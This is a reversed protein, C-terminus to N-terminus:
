LSLDELIGLDAYNQAQVKFMRAYAGKRAMLEDHSGSEIISGNEMMYIRDVMRASSLRHSIFIVTRDCLETMITKYLNYESIPDLASSPEDFIVIEAEENAFVRALAIKQEEGGSLLVGNEDFERTLQAYVGNKFGEIKEYLGARKLALLVKEKDSNTSAEHMIVNSAISLAYIQFDQFITAFKKRYSNRSFNNVDQSNYLLTGDAQYLGMILKVLTSKGAGNYGVLVIKEGKHLTLNIDNLCPTEAGDYTYTINRLELTNFPEVLESKNDKEDSSVEDEGELFSRLYDLSKGLSMCRGFSSIIDEIQWSLNQVAVVLSVYIGISLNGNILVQYVTYIGCLIFFAANMVFHDWSSVAMNKIAFKTYIKKISKRSKRNLDLFLQKISFLRIEGAYKREYFIRTSYDLERQNRTMANQNKVNLNSRIKSVLYGNILPILSFTLIIPDWQVIIFVVTIMAAISGLFETITDLLNKTSGEVEGIARSFNDYFTPNEFKCLPIKVSKQIIARYIKGFFQPDTIRTYYEHIVVLIHFVAYCLCYISIVEFLYSFPKKNSISDFIVKPLNVWFVANFVYRIIENVVYYIVKVPNNHLLM